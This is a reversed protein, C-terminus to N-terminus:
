KLIKEKWGLLFVRELSGRINSWSHLHIAKDGPRPPHLARGGGGELPCDGGAAAPQSHVAMRSLSDLRNSQSLCSWIRSVSSGVSASSWGLIQAIILYHLYLKDQMQTSLNAELIRYEKKQRKESRIEQEWIRRKDKEKKKEDTKRIEGEKDAEKRDREKNWDLNGERKWCKVFSLFWFSVLVVDTVYM